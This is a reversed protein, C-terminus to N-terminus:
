EKSGIFSLGDIDFDARIMGIEQGEKLFQRISSRGEPKYDITRDNVYMTVFKQNTEDDIGRGWAKAFELAEDPHQISHEI